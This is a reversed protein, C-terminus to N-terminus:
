YLQVACSICLALAPPQSPDMETSHSLAKMTERLSESGNVSVSTVDMTYRGAGGAGTASIGLEKERAAIIRKCQESADPNKDEFQEACDQLTLVVIGLCVM